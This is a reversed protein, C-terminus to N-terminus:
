AQDNIVKKKRGSGKPNKHIHYGEPIDKIWGIKKALKYNLFSCFPVLANAIVYCIIVILWRKPVLGWGYIM